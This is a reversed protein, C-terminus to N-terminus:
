QWACHEYKWWLYYIASFVLFELKTFLLSISLFCINNQWPRTETKPFRIVPSWDANWAFLFRNLNSIEQEWGELFIILIQFSIFKVKIHNTSFYCNLFVYYAPLKIAHIFICSGVPHMYLLFFQDIWIM